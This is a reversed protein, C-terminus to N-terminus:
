SCAGVSNLSTCSCEFMNPKAFIADIQLLLTLLVKFDCCFSYRTVEFEIVLAQLDGRVFRFHAGLSCYVAFNSYGVEKNKDGAVIASKSDYAEFKQKTLFELTLQIFLKNLNNRDVGILRARLTRIKVAPEVLEWHVKKWVAERQKIENKLGSFMNETVSKRLLTKDGDAVLKNIEKYLQFAENYFAKKSYGTKRLKAVAYANKLELIMDEKTRRWGNRTFWRQWFSIAPRPGYPEYVIGPSVMAVQAAGAKQFISGERMTSELRGGVFDMMNSSEKIALARYLVVRNVAPEPDSFRSLVGMQRVQPSPKVQTSMPRVEPLLISLEAAMTSRLVRTSGHPLPSDYIKFLTACKRGINAGRGITIANSYNRSSAFSSHPNQHLQTVRLVNRILNSRLLAMTM